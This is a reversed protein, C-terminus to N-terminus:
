KKKPEFTVVMRPGDAFYSEHTLMLRDIEDRRRKQAATVHGCEEAIDIDELEVSLLEYEDFTLPQTFFDRGWAEFDTLYEEYQELLWDSM